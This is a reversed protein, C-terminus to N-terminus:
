KKTKLTGKKRREIKSKKSKIRYKEYKDERYNAFLGSIYLEVQLLTKNKIKARKKKQSIKRKKNKM